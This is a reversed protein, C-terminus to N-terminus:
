NAVFFNIRVNGNFAGTGVNAISVSFSGAKLSKVESVVPVGATNTGNYVSAFIQSGLGVSTNKVDVTAVTLSATTLAESSVIGRQGNITVSGGLASVSGGQTGILVVPTGAQALSHVTITGSFVSDGTVAMTGNFNVNKDTEIHNPYRVESLMEELKIAM